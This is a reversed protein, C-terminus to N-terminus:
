AAPPQKSKKYNISRLEDPDKGEGVLWMGFLYGAVLSGFGTLIRLNVTFKWSEMVAYAVAFFVFACIIHAGWAKWGAVDEVAARGHILRRVILAAGSAILVIFGGFLIIGRM